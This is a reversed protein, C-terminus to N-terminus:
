TLARDRHESHTPDTAGYTRSRGPYRRSDAPQRRGDAPQRRGSVTTAAGRGGRDPGPPGRGGRSSRVFALPDSSFEAIADLDPALAFAATWIVGRRELESPVVRHALGARAVLAGAVAHTVPDM